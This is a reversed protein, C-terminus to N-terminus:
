LPCMRPPGVPVFADGAEFANLDHYDRGRSNVRDWFKDIIGESGEFSEIPEWRRELLFLPVYHESSGSERIM